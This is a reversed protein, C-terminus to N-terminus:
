LAGFLQVWYPTGRANMSYGVGIRTFEPTMINDRHGQSDMWAQMVSEPTTQGMAINEGLRRYQTESDISTFCSKGGPRTHSFQIMIEQARVNAAEALAEDWVMENLGAARRNENVIEAVGLEEASIGVPSATDEIQPASAVRGEAKGYLLYHQYLLEADTGLVAAVDPNAQAYYEADFLAGDKMVMPQAYATMSWGFAMVVAAAILIRRKM